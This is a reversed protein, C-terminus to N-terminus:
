LRYNPGLPYDRGYRTASDIQSRSIGIDSLLYDPMAQLLKRDARVKLKRRIRRSVVLM